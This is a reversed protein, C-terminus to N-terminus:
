AYQLSRLTSYEFRNPPPGAGCVTARLRVAGTGLLPVRHAGRRLHEAMLDSEASSEFLRFGTDAEGLM